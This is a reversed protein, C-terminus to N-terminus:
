HFLVFSVVYGSLPNPTQDRAPPVLWEAPQRDENAALQGASVLQNLALRTVTSREWASSDIIVLPPEPAM